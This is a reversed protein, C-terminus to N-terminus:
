IESSGGGNSVNKLIETMRFEFQVMTFQKMYKDHARKGMQVRLEQNLILRKINESLALIDGKELLLGTENHEIIDPIGGEFTSITPLGVSMAELLVLPFCEEHSPHVLIDANQLYSSKEDDVKKGLYVVNDQLGVNKIKDMLENQTLTGEGGIINCKFNIGEKTLIELADLLDLVGKSVALNGIFLLIPAEKSHEKTVKSAIPIIGNPCIHIKDLTVYKEIDMYLLQSLLIVDANKFVRKYLWNDLKKHQNTAIGKNHFHFIFKKGFMKLFLVILADKYFGTGKATITMYIVDPNFRFRLKLATFILKVYRWLKGFGSKGIDDVSTSTGLNLFNTEFQTNIQESNKIFQGVVAAGHIPPPLHLIFLIRQKKAAM